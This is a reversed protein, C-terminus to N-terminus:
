AGRLDKPLWKDVGEEHWPPPTGFEIVAEVFAKIHRTPTELWIDCGAMPMDCGADIVRKVRDRIKEIPGEHLVKFASLNGGIPYWPGMVKNAIRRTEIM